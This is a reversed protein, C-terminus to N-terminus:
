VRPPLEDPPNEYKRPRSIGRLFFWVGIIQPIRVVHMYWVWGNAQLLPVALAAHVAIIAAAIAGFFFLMFGGIRTKNIRFWRHSKRFTYFRGPLVEPEWRALNQMGKSRGLAFLVSVFLLGCALLINEVYYLLSSLAPDM